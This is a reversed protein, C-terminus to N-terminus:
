NGHRDSVLIIILERAVSSNRHCMVHLHKSHCTNIDMEKRMCDKTDSWFTKKRKVCVYFLVSCHKEEPSFVSCRSRGEGHDGHYRHVPFPSLFAGKPEDRFTLWCRVEGQSSSVRCIRHTHTHTIEWGVYLFAIDGCSGDRIAWETGSNRIRVCKWM